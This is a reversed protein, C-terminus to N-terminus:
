PAGEHEAPTLVLRADDGFRDVARTRWRPAAAITDIDIAVAPLGGRGLLVPATYWHIEDVADAALWAAAVTGGGELLVHRVDLDWLQALVLLPDHEVIQVTRASSDHLRADEAIRRRGLLVRLPQEDPPLARGATDRVTLSPDDALATGTGVAVADADARLRQVQARAAAGTIWQSTGDAAAIRGDLSSATKWTVFPRGRRVAAEWARNIDAEDALHGVDVEVGAARLEGIGGSAQRNPDPRAIVVRRVGAEILAASCPGTRGHHNCPELTVVATAGRSRGAAARLAEVEAHPRGAGRHHGTALVAGSGDLLVCGVRPNPSTRGASLAASIAVRMAATEAATPVGGTDWGM